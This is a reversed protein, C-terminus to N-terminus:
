EGHYWQEVNRVRTPLENLYKSMAEEMRLFSEQKQSESMDAHGFDSEVVVAQPGVGDYDESRLVVIEGDSGLAAIDEDSFVREGTDPYIVDELNFRQYRTMDWSITTEEDNYGHLTAGKLHLDMVTNEMRVFSPDQFSEDEAYALMQGGVEWSDYRDGPWSVEQQEGDYTVVKLLPGWPSHKAAVTISVPTYGLDIEVEDIRGRERKVRVDYADKFLRYADEGTKLDGIREKIYQERDLAALSTLDASPTDDSTRTANVPAAAPTNDRGDGISGQFKGDKGQIYKTTM